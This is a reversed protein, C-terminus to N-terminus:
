RGNMGTYMPPYKVYARDVQICTVPMTSDAYPCGEHLKWSITVTLLHEDGDVTSLSARNWDLDVRFARTSAESRHGVPM